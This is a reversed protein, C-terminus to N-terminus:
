LLSDLCLHYAAAVLLATLILQARTRLRILPASQQSAGLYAIIYQAM